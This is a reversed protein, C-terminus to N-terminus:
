QVGSAGKGQAKKRMSQVADMVDSQQALFANGLETTWQIDNALRELAEPVAAMSQISPDWPQEAVADALADGELDPNKKLWQQLQMIELPYTSAVLVQALLADPYLAIPAM